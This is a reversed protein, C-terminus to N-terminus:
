SWELLEHTVDNDRIRRKWADGPKICKVANVGSSPSVAFVRTDGSLIHDMTREHIPGIIMHHSADVVVGQPSDTPIHHFFPSYSCMATRIGDKDTKAADCAVIHIKYHSPAFQCRWWSLFCLAEADDIDTTGSMDGFSGCDTYICLSVGDLVFTNAALTFCEIMDDDIREGVMGRAFGVMARIPDFSSQFGSQVAMNHVVLTACILDYPHPRVFRFVMDKYPGLDSSIANAADPGPFRTEDLHAIGFNLGLAKADSVFLSMVGARVRCSNRLISIYDRIHDFSEGRTNEKLVELAYAHESPHAEKFEAEVKELGGVRVADMFREAFCPVVSFVDRAIEYFLFRAYEASRTKTGAEVEMTAEISRANSVCMRYSFLPRGTPPAPCLAVKLAFTAMASHVDPM